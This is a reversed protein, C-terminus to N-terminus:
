SIGRRIFRAGVMVWLLGILAGVVVDSLYHVGLFVRSFGVLVILTSLAWAIAGRYSLGSALVFVVLMGYLAVSTAAHGSPFSFTDEIFLAIDSPRAREFVIKLVYVSLASGCLAVSVAAVRDFMGRYICFMLVVAFVTIVPLFDGFLTIWSFFAVTTDGRLPLLANLLSLEFENM